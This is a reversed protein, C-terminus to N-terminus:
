IDAMILMEDLADAAVASIDPSTSSSQVLRTLTQATLETDFRSVRVLARIAESTYPGPRVLIEGIYRVSLPSGTKEFAALIRPIMSPDSDVSYLRRLMRAAEDGGISAAGEIISTRLVALEDPTAKALGPFRNPSQIAGLVNKYLLDLPELMQPDRNRKIMEAVAPAIGSADQLLASLLLDRVEKRSHFPVLMEASIARMEPDGSETLGRRAVIFIGDDMRRDYDLALQRLIEMDSPTLLPGTRVWNGLTGQSDAELLIKQLLGARTDPMLNANHLSDLMAATAAPTDYKSLADVLAGATVPDTAGQLTSILALVASDDGIEGLARAAAARIKQEQDALMLILANSASNLRLSGAAAALQPLVALRAAPDSARNMAALIPEEMAPDPKAAAAKAAAAVVKVDKDNLGGVIMQVLEPPNGEFTAAIHFATVRVKPSSDSAARLLLPLADKEDANALNKIALERKDPNTDDLSKGIADIQSKPVKKHGGMGALQLLKAAGRVANGNAMKPTTAGSLMAAAMQIDPKDSKAANEVATLASGTIPALQMMANLIMQPNAQSDWRAFSADTIVPVPKPAPKGPEAPPEQAAQAAKVAADLMAGMLNMTAEQGARKKMRPVAQVIGSFLIAPSMKTELAQVAAQNGMLALCCAAASRIEAEKDSLLPTIYPVLSPDTAEALAALAKRRTPVDNHQLLGLMDAVGETHHYHALVRWAPPAEDTLAAPNPTVPVVVAAQQQQDIQQTEDVPEEEDDGAGLIKAIETEQKSQMAARREAPSLRRGPTRVPQAAPAPAASAAPQAAAAAPPPPPTNPINHVLPAVKGQLTQAEIKLFGNVAASDDVLSPKASIVTNVFLSRGEIGIYDPWLAGAEQIQQPTLTAAVDSLAKRASPDDITTLTIAAPVPKRAAASKLQALVSGGGTRALALMLESYGAADPKAQQHISALQRLSSADAYLALTALIKGTAATSSNQPLFKLFDPPQLAAQPAGGPVPAPTSVSAVSASARTLMEVLAPINSTGRQRLPTQIVGPNPSPTYALSVFDLAKVGRLEPEAVPELNAQTARFVYGSALDLNPSTEVTVPGLDTQRHLVTRGDSFTIKGSEMRGIRNVSIPEEGVGEIIMSPLIIKGTLSRADISIAQRGSISPFEVRVGQGQLASVQNGEREMVYNNQPRSMIANKFDRFPIYPLEEYLPLRYEMVLGDKAEADLVASREGTALTVQHMGPEVPISRTGGKSIRGITEGDISIDVGTFRLNSIRIEPRIRGLFKQEIPSILGFDTKIPIADVLMSRTMPRVTGDSFFVYHKGDGASPTREWLLPRFRDLKAVDAGAYEYLTDDSIATVERLESPPQGAKSFALLAGGAQKLRDRAKLAPSEFGSWSTKPVPAATPAITAPAAQPAKPAAQAAASSAPAPSATQQAPAAAPQAPAAPRQAALEKEREAAERELRERIARPPGAQKGRKSLLKYGAFGVISLLAVAVLIIGILAGHAQLFSFEKVKASKSKEKKKKKPKKGKTEPAPTAADIRAGCEGCMISQSPLKAGCKPCANGASPMNPAALPIDVIEAVDEVPEVEVPIDEAEAAVQVVEEEMSFSPKTGAAANVSPELELEM